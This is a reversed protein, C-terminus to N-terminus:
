EGRRNRRRRYEAGNIALPIPQHRRLGDREGERAIERNIQAYRNLVPGLRAAAKAIGEIAAVFPRLDVTLFVTAASPLTPSAPPPDPTWRMADGSVQWDDLANDIADIVHDGDM